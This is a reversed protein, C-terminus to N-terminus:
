RLAAALGRLEPTERIGDAVMAAVARAGPAQFHTTDPKDLTGSSEKAYYPFKVPDAALWHELSDRLLPDRPSEALRFVWEM